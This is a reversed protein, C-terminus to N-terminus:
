TLDFTILDVATSNPDNKQVEAVRLDLRSQRKPRPNRNQSGGLKPYLFGYLPRPEPEPEPLYNAFEMWLLKEEIKISVESNPGVQPPVWTDLLGRFPM